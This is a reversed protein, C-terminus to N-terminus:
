FFFLKSKLVKSTTKIQLPRSILFLCLGRQFIRLVFKLFLEFMLHHLHKPYKIKPTLIHGGMNLLYLGFNYVQLSYAKGLHNNNKRFLYNLHTNSFKIKFVCFEFLFLRM